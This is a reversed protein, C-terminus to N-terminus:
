GKSVEFCACEPVGLRDADEKTLFYYPKGNIKRAGTVAYGKEDFWYWYGNIAEWENKLYSGDPFEYWWGKDNRKWAGEAKFYGEQQEKYPIRKIQSYVNQDYRTRRRGAGYM